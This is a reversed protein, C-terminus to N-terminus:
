QAKIYIKVWLYQSLISCFTLKERGGEKSEKREETDAGLDGCGSM